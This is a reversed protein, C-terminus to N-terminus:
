LSIWSKKQKKQLLGLYVQRSQSINNGSLL